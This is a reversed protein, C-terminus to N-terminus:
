KHKELYQIASRLTDINDKANGLMTNCHKCLIGRAKNTAHCHDASAAHIPTGDNLVTGCIACKGDQEIMLNNFLEQTFGHKERRLNVSYQSKTAGTSNKGQWCPHKDGGRDNSMKQKTEESHKQGLFFSPKGLMKKSCKERFEESKPKGRQADGIKKKTEESKNQGPNTRRAMADRQKQRYEATRVYVGTPM